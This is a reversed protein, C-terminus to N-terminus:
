DDMFGPFLERITQQEAKSLTGILYKVVGIMQALKRAMRDADEPSMRAMPVNKGADDKSEAKVDKKEEGATLAM